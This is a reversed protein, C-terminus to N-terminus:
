IRVVRPNPGLPRTADRTDIVLKSYRAILELDYYSHDVLIITADHGQLTSKEIDLSDYSEGAITTTPVYRDSYSIRSVKEALLQAVRLAPSNRTDGMDKKFSAGLLLLAARKM